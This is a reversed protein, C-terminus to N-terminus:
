LCSGLLLLLYAWSGWMWLSFGYVLETAFISLQRVNLPLFWVCTRYCIHEAAECEFPSVMCLNQLLYAWSGWMWLSFGYVLETAFISLQRVNLPLFWVCTRYCIHEAAECEFPSVMCLNQLLYAWSGWMWLSFGYVLETAFISLQRVNLPLFWVCTRDLASVALKQDYMPRWQSRSVSSQLGHKKCSMGAWSSIDGYWM